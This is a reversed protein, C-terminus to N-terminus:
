RDGRPYDILRARQKTLQNLITRMAPILEGATLGIPGIGQAVLLDAAQGHIWVAGRVADWADWNQALLAGCIGALVDGSGATALAPNGTANIGVEGDQRAIVSGSGKLVVIANFRQALTRAAALRDAQVQGATMNLLRAAELPHPTLVTPAKRESVRQQLASETSILNLADADVVAPVTASLGRAVLDRAMRSIGLGPGLVIAGKSPDIDAARRCMLEPHVPDYAPPDELFAAFTRGAGCKAAATASLIVAGAMGHAGGAVIVEGYSGKHSNHLRPQLGGGFSDQTVLHARPALFHRPDIDLSAVSVCGAYDRGSGTHLGPKGGIFTITHTAAVAIGHEGVVNGTDADLGSPVDLALVSHNLSNLLEVVGHLPAAIARTLGIGFLGDIVLKWATSVLVAGFDATDAFRVGAQRAHALAQGADASYKAPDAFMLVTVEFGAEELNAAAELADGGNNGPGALVLIPAGAPEDHVIKGALDSSARGARQMLTFCPLAALAAHEINRIEAVSYLATPSPM